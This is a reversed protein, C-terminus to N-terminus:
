ADEPDDTRPLDIIRGVTDGPDLGYGRRIGVNRLMIELCIKDDFSTVGPERYKARLNHFLERENPTLEEQVAAVEDGKGGIFGEHAPASPYDYAFFLEATVNIPRHKWSALACRCQVLHRGFRDAKVKGARLFKAGHLLPDNVVGSGHGIFKSFTVITENGTARVIM